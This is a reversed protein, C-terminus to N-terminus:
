HLFFINSKCHFFLSNIVFSLITNKNTATMLRTHAQPVEEGHLQPHIVIDRHARVHCMM